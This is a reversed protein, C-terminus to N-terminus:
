GQKNSTLVPSSPGAALYRAFWRTAHGIVAELAGPEPFLHSAGPIIEL